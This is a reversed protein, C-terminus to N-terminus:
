KTSQLFLIFKLIYINYDIGYWEEGHTAKQLITRAEIFEM